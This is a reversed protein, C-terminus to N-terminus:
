LNQKDLGIYIRYIVQFEEENKEKKQKELKKNKKKKKGSSEEILKDLSFHKKSDDDEDMVLLSLEAQQSLFFVFRLSKREKKERWLLIKNVRQLNSAGLHIGNPLCHLGLHFAVYHPMEDPDEGNM